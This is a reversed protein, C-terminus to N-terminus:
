IWPMVMERVYRPFRKLYRRLAALDVRDVLTKWEGVPARGKGKLRHVVKAAANEGVALIGQVTRLDLRLYPNM